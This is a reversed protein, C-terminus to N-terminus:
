RSGRSADRGSPGPVRAPAPAPPPPRRKGREETLNESKGGYQICTYATTYLVHRRVHISPRVRLHRSAEPNMDFVTASKTDTRTYSIKVWYVTLYSMFGTSVHLPFVESFVPPPRPWLPPCGLRPNLTEGFWLGVCLTSPEGPTASLPLTAYGTWDM